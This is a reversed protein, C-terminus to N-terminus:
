ILLNWDGAGDYNHSIIIFLCIYKINECVFEADSLNSVSIALEHPWLPVWRESTHTYSSDFQRWPSSGTEHFSTYFGNLGLCFPRWKASSVILGMKKFSFIRIQNFIESFNTGLTGILLIGANTWIIAQRRGPSLGNDSGITILKGICIHKVQGWHTLEVKNVFYAQNGLMNPTKHLIDSM